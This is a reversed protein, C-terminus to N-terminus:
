VVVSTVDMRHTRKVEEPTVWIPKVRWVTADKLVVGAKDAEVTVHAETTAPTNITMAVRGNMWYAETFTNDVYLRLDITEDNPSLKLTGTTSGSGVTVESVSNGSPPAYEVFFEVGTPGVAAAAGAAEPVTKVGSTCTARQRSKSPVKTKLCCSAYKPKRIVFTWAHCKADANCAAECLKFDKYDVNTVNYDSGPLDIGLMEKAYPTPAPSAGGVMVQASLRSAETPRKFSVLVESQNGVQPPLQLSVSRGAQLTQQKFSGVVAGRLQDQEEVPSYVLQKLEPNWTVVRPLTQTSAPPVRAWGWNIRRKKVPDWFDKSAYLQGADILVEPEATWNGNQRAGNEVYTGVQM